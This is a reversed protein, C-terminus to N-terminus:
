QTISLGRGSSGHHDVLGCPRPRHASPAPQEDFGFRDCFKIKFTPQEVRLQQRLDGERILESRDSCPARAGGRRHPPPPREVELEHGTNSRTRRGRALFALRPPPLLVASRVRALEDDDACM